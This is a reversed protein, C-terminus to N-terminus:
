RGFRHFSGGSAVYVDTGLAIGLGEDVTPNSFPVKEIATIAGDVTEIKIVNTRGCLWVNQLKDEFIYSVYDDLTDLVHSEQWGKATPVFSKINDDLTSIL